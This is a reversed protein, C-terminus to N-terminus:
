EAKDFHSSIPQNKQLEQITTAFFKGPPKPGRIWSINDDQAVGGVEDLWVINNTDVKSSDATAFYVESNLNTEKEYASRLLQIDEDVEAIKKDFMAKGDVFVQKKEMLTNIQVQYSRTQQAQHETTM